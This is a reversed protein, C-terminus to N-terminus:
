KQHLFRGVQRYRAARPHPYSASYDACFGERLLTLGLDSGDPLRVYALLRGYRDRLQAGEPELTVSRRSALQATRRAAAGGLPIQAACTQGGRLAERTCKENVHSEPCDIGLIRVRVRRKGSSLQVDITDGDVIHVVAAPIPRRPQSASCAPLLFPLTLLVVLPNV